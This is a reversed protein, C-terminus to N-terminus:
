DDHDRHFWWDGRVNTWEEVAFRNPPPAAGDPLYVYQYNYQLSFDELQFYLGGRDRFVREVDVGSREIAAALDAYDTAARADFPAVDDGCVADGDRYNGHPYELVRCDQPSHLYFYLDLQQALPLVQRDLRDVDALRKADGLPRGPAIREVLGAIAGSGPLSVEGHGPVPLPGAVSLALYAATTGAVAM